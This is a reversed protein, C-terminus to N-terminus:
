KATRRKTVKPKEAEQKKHQGYLTHKNKDFDAKNILKWGKGGIREIKVTELIM